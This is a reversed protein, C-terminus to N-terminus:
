VSSSSRRIGASRALKSAQIRITLKTGGGALVAAPNTVLFQRWLDNGLGYRDMRPVVRQLIHGYGEGGYRGTRVKSYIDHSILVRDAFGADVLTRILRLRGGDNPMSFESYPYYSCERGFLDFAVFVGMRALQELPRADDVTRDVHSVVVRALDVGCAEVIGVAEFSRTAIAARISSWDGRVRRSPEHRRSM